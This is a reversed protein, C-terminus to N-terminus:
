QFTEPDTGELVPALISLYQQRQEPTMVRVAEEVLRRTSEGCAEDVTRRHQVFRAFNIFDIQGATRRENEFEALELRLLNVESALQSLRPEIQEHLQKIQVYQGGSLSLKSQMWSLQADLNDPAEPKRALYWSAHALVGAAIGVLVITATRKM